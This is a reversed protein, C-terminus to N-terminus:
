LNIDQERVLRGGLEASEEPAPRAFIVAGRGHRVELTRHLRAALQMSGSGNGQAEPIEWDAAFTRARILGQSEDIWAWVMTHEWAATDQLTLREIAEASDLQEHRWAPMDDLAAHVWTVEGDHAVAVDGARGRMTFTAEARVETFFRAAALAAVGAFSIEGHPHVISISAGGVDNVFATEGTGLRRALAQRDSDPILRGEDVIVTAGDGLNGAADTFVRLQHM